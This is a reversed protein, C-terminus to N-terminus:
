EGAARSDRQAGRGQESLESQPKPVNDQAPPLPKPTGHQRWDKILEVAKHKRFEETAVMADRFETPRALTLEERYLVKGALSISCTVRWDDHEEENLKKNEKDYHSIIYSHNDLTCITRYPPQQGAAVVPFLPLVVLLVVRITKM